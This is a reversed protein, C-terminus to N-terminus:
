SNITILVEQKADGIYPTKHTNAENVEHINCSTPHPGHYKSTYVYM